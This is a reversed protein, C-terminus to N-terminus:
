ILYIYFLFFNLVQYLFLYVFVIVFSSLTSIQNRHTKWFRLNPLHGWSVTHPWTIRQFCYNIHGWYVKWSHELSEKELQQPALQTPLLCHSIPTRGLRFLSPHSLLFALFTLSQIDEECSFIPERRLWVGCAM